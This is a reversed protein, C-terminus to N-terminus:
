GLNFIGKEPWLLPVRSRLPHSKFRVDDPYTSAYAEPASVM